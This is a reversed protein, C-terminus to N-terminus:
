KMFGAKGDGNADKMPNLKDMLSPKHGNNQSTTNGLHSGNSSTTRTNSLHSGTNGTTGTMGTTGTNGLHSGSNGTTGSMGTTGTSGSTGTLGHSGHSDHDGHIGHTGHTGRASDNETLSTTGKAGAGGLTGGVSRPEGNFSDTREERGTLAGGQQRFESMSVPPLASATHHKAENQHIEHVPVTTHVVSPQITEKEIVPQINEHVHHHVHEGAITPAAITQAQGEAVTRTNKFQAAEAALREKVHEDNGHKIHREEAAAMKHRHEEPLVERDQIPQVSTHFHDQHVERDVATQVQEEQTRVVKEHQVAPNVTEHVTTDHKGDRSLFSGVAAKAKDM